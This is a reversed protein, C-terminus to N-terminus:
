SNVKAHNSDVLTQHGSGDQGEAYYYNGVILGAFNVTAGGYSGAAVFPGGPAASTYLQWVTPVVPVSTLSLQGSTGLFSM